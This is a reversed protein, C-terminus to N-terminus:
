RRVCTLVGGGTAPRSTRVAATATATGSTSAPVAVDVWGVVAGAADTARVSCMAARRTAQTVEFSVRVVGPDATDVATARWGISARTLSVGAWIAWALALVVFAALATTLLPRRDRPPRRGYRADLDDGSVGGGSTAGLSPDTM